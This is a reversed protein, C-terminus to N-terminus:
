YALLASLVSWLFTQRCGGLSVTRRGFDPKFPRINLIIRRIRFKKLDDQYVTKGHPEAGDPAGLATILFTAARSDSSRLDVAGPDAPTIIIPERRDRNKEERYSPRLRSRRQAEFCAEGEWIKTNFFM